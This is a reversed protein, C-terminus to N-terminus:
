FNYVLNRSQLLLKHDINQPRVWSVTILLETNLWIENTIWVASSVDNFKAWVADFKEKLVIFDPIHQSGVFAYHISEFPKRSSLKECNEWRCVVASTVLVRACHKLDCLLVFQNRFHYIRQIICFLIPQVVVSVFSRWSWGLPSRLAGTFSGVVSTKLLYWSYADNKLCIKLYILPWRRGQWTTSLSALGYIILKQM